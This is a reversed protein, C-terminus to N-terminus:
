ALVGLVVFSQGGHERLLIVKDGKQFWAGDMFNLHVRSLRLKQDVAIIDDSEATGIMVTSPKQSEVAEVAIIKILEVIREM